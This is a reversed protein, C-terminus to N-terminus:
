QRAFSLGAIIEHHIIIAQRLRRTFSDMIGLLSRGYVGVPGQIMVSWDAVRIINIGFGKWYYDGVLDGMFLAAAHAELLTFGADLAVARLGLRNSPDRFLTAGEEPVHQLTNNKIGHTPPTTHEPEPDDGM